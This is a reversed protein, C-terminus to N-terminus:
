GGMGGRNLGGGSGVVHMGNGSYGVGSFYIAKPPPTSIARTGCKPCRLSNEFRTHCISCVRLCAPNDCDLLLNVVHEALNENTHMKIARLQAIAKRKSMPHKSFGHPHNPTTVKYGSGRRRIKYPMIRRRRQIRHPGHRGHRHLLSQAQTTTYHRLPMSPM